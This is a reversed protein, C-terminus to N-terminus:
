QQRRARAKSIGGALGNAPDADLANITGRPQQKQEPSSAGTGMSCGLRSGNRHNSGCQLARAVTAQAVRCFVCAFVPM